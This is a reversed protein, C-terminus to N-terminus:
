IFSDCWCRQGCPKQGQCAAHLLTVPIMMVSAVIVRSTLTVRLCKGTKDLDAWARDAFRECM